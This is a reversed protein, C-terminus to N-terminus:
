NKTTTTDYDYRPRISRLDYNRDSENYDFADHCRRRITTTDYDFRLESIPKVDGVHVTIATISIRPPHAATILSFESVVYPMTGKPQMLPARKKRTVEGVDSSSTM